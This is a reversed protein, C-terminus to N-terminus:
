SRIYNINSLGFICILYFIRVFNMVFAHPGFIENLQRAVLFARVPLLTKVSEDKVNNSMHHSIRFLVCSIYICVCMRRLSCMHSHTFSPSLAFLHAINACYRIRNKLLDSVLTQLMSFIFTREIHYNFNLRRVPDVIFRVEIIGFLKQYTFSDDFSMHQATADRKRQMM